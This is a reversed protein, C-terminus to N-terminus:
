IHGTSLVRRMDSTALQPVTHRSYPRVLAALQPALLQIRASRCSARGRCRSSRSDNRETECGGPPGDVLCKRFGANGPLHHDSIALVAVNEDGIIAVPDYIGM